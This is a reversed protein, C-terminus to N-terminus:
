GKSCNRYKEVMDAFRRIDKAAATYYELVTMKKYKEHNQPKIELMLTIDAGCEALEKATRDFDINGDFPIMHMDRDGPYANDSIHTAVLKEGWMPLYRVGPTFADEHSTDLCFRAEPYRDLLCRLNEVFRHSEFALTVGKEKAYSMLQDFRRLGIESIEPMPTGSSAHLVLLNVNYKVCFDVSELYRKLAQEGCECDLWIDNQKIYPAHFNDITINAENLAKVVEEAQPHFTCVFTREIENQVFADIVERFPVSNAVNIGVKM